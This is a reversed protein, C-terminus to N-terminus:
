PLHYEMFHLFTAGKEEFLLTINYCKWPLVYSKAPRVHLFAFAVSSILYSVNTGGGQEHLILFHPLILFTVEREWHFYWGWDM